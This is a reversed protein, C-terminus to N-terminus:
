VMFHGFRLHLGQLRRVAGVIFILLCFLWQNCDANSWFAAGDENPFVRYEDPDGQTNLYCLFKRLHSHFPVTVSM